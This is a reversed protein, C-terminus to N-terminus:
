EHFRQYKGIGEQRSYSVGKQLSLHKGLQEISGSGKVSGGDM